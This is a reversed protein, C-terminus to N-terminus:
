VTAGTSCKTSERSRSRSEFFRLILSQRFDAAFLRFKRDKGTWGSLRTPVRTCNTIRVPRDMRRGLGLM